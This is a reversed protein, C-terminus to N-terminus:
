FRTNSMCKLARFTAARSCLIRTKCWSFAVRSNVSDLLLLFLSLFPKLSLSFSLFFLVGVKKGSSSPDRPEIMQVTTALAAEVMTKSSAALPGRMLDALCPQEGGCTRNSIRLLSASFADSMYLPTLSRISEDWVAQQQAITDSCIANGQLLCSAALLNMFSRERRVIYFLRWELQQQELQAVFFPVCDPPADMLDQSGLCRSVDMQDVISTINELQTRTSAADSPVRAANNNALFSSFCFDRERKCEGLLTQVAIVDLVAIQQPADTPVVAALSAKLAKLCASASDCAFEDAVERM